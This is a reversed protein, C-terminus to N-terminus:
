VLVSNLRSVSNKLFGFKKKLVFKSKVKLKNSSILKLMEKYDRVEYCLRLKNLIFNRSIENNLHYNIVKKQLMCARILETSFM